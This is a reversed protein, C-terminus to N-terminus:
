GPAVHLGPRPPARLLPPHGPGPPLFGGSGPPPGLHFGGPFGRWAERLLDLVAGATPMADFGQEEMTAGVLLEGGRRPVVYVEPSRVIHRVLEPGILRVLQGKVPRLGLPATLAAVEESWVGAALVAADCRIEFAAQGALGTVAEVRGAAHEIRTVR